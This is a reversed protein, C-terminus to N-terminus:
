EQRRIKGGGEQRQLRKLKELELVENEQNDFMSLIANEDRISLPTAPIDIVEDLEGDENEYDDSVDSGSIFDIAKNPDIPKLGARKGWPTTEIGSNGAGSDSRRVSNGKNGNMGATPFNAPRVQQQQQPARPVSLKEFKEKEVVIETDKIKKFSYNSFIWNEIDEMYEAGKDFSSKLEGIINQLQADMIESGCLPCINVSIAHAFKSPVDERCSKCKM